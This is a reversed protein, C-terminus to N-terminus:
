LAEEAESVFAAIGENPFQRKLETVSSKIEEDKNETYLIYLTNRGPWVPNNLMPTSYGRGAVPTLKSFFTVKEEEFLEELNEELAESIYIEYRRM